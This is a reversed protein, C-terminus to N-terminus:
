IVIRIFSKSVATIQQRSKRFFLYVNHHNGHLFPSSTICDSHLNKKEWYLLQLKCHIIHLFHRPTPIDYSQSMLKSPHDPQVERPPSVSASISSSLPLLVDPLPGPQAPIHQPGVPNWCPLPSELLGFPWCAASLDLLAKPGPLVVPNITLTPSLCQLATVHDSRDHSINGLM